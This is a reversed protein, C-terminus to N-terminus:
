ISGFTISGIVTIEGFDREINATPAVLVHDAEGSAISIAESIHSLLLTGGPVSERRILDELEATVAARVSASNPSLNIEFNQAIAVPAAVTLDNTVPRLVDIHEQVLEVEPASPIIGGVKEDMVFQLYVSGRGLQNPYVWVRTVGPVQKAWAIYDAENGGHPPRQIREVIRTRWAEPDEINAGGTLGPAEVAAASQVGPIPSMLSISTGALANGATGSTIATIEGIGEGSAITVDADLTYEQGGTRRLATGAPIISGNTGTFKVEGTAYSSALRPIDWLFGHLPLTEVDCTTPLMQRMCWEIYGDMEYSAMALMRAIVAEVSFRLQPDAGPLRLRIEAEIRALTETPLSRNYPM